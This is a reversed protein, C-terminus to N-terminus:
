YKPDPASPTPYKRSEGSSLVPLSVVSLAGSVWLFSCATIGMGAQMHVGGLRGGWSVGCVSMGCHSARLFLLLCLFPYLTLLLATLDLVSGGRVSM